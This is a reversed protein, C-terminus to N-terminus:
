HKPQQQLQATQTAAGSRSWKIVAIAAIQVITLGNAAIIPAAQVCFGYVLWLGVGSGFLALMSWSLDRGGTRWTQIVQPTFAFTTLTGAVFGLAQILSGDM